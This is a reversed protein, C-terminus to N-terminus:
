RRGASSGASPDGSSVSERASSPPASPVGAETLAMRYAEGAERLRGLGSFGDALERWAVAAQRSVGHGTLTRAALELEAVAETEDGQAFMARSRVIRAHAAELRSGDGLRALASTAVRIAESPRGCMLDARALETEAYALDTSSGTDRLAVHARELLVRADEPMPPNARMLLWAQAIRLRALSRDDQGEAYAAVAREALVLATGVDGRAEAALSANWYIAGQARRSGTQEVHHLASEALLAARVYDGREYHLGIVTSALEAHVDSGVLGVRELSGLAASGLDLAHAVDGMEKYCRTLDVTLRAFEEHRRGEAAGARLEELAVVAEELRGCLELARARVTHAQRRESEAHVPLGQIAAASHALAEASEGNHLAIEAYRLSVQARESHEGAPGDKLYAPTCGLRRALLEIARATPARRGSELLSIYSPSVGPGSLDSQSM